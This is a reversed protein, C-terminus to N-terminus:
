SKYYLLIFKSLQKLKDPETKLLEQKCQKLEPSDPNLLMTPDVMYFIFAFENNILQNMKIYRILYIIIGETEQRDDFLRIYRNLLKYEETNEEPTYFKNNTSTPNIKFIRGKFSINNNLKPNNLQNLQDKLNTEYQRFIKNMVFGLDGKRTNM